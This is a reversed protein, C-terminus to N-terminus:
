KHHIAQLTYHSHSYWNTKLVIVVVVVMALISQLLMIGLIWIVFSITIKEVVGEKFFTTADNEFSFSSSYHLFFGLLFFWSVEM